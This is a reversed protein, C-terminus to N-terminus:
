LLELCHGSDQKTKEYKMSNEKNMGDDCIDGVLNYFKDLYETKYIREWFSIHSPGDNISPTGISWVDHNDYNDILYSELYNQKNEDVYDLKFGYFDSDDLMLIWPYKYNKSEVKECINDKNLIFKNRNNYIGGNNNSYLISINYKKNSLLKQIENLNNSVLFEPLNMIIYNIKTFDDETMKQYQQIINIIEGIIDDAVNFEYKSEIKRIYCHIVYCINCKNDDVTYVNKFKYPRTNRKTKGGNIKLQKLGEIDQLTDDKDYIQKFGDVNLVIKYKPLNLQREKKMLIDNQVSSEIPLLDDM